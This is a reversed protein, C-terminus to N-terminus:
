SNKKTLKLFQQINADDFRFWIRNRCFNTGYYLPLVLSKPENLRPEFGPPVVFFSRM